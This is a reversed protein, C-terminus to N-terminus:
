SGGTTAPAAVPLAFHQAIRRAVARLSRTEGGHREPDALAPATTLQGV